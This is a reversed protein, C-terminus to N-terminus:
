RVLTINGQQEIFTGDSLRAKFFYVYVGSPVDVGRFRGDWPFDANESLFVRDGWRDFIQFTMDSLGQGRVFLEDNLGDGNPSFIDPIFVRAPDLICINVQASDPCGGENEIYLSVTYNGPADYSNTPNSAGDYNAIEGDGFEWIGSIGHESLDIFQVPQLEWPICNDNPNTSFGASIPTYSPIFILSDFTCGEDLDQIELEVIDGATSNFPNVADGDWEILYNGAQLVTAEAFGPEGFCATDSLSVIPSIPPLIQILVSDTQPDSCGDEVTVYYYQTEDPSVNNQSLPLLNDSWLFTYFADPEGGTGSVAISTGAGDCLLSDQANLQIELPPFVQVTQEFSSSCYTGSWEYTILYEGEGTNGPNFGEFSIPGTLMGDVPSIELPFLQDEFCYSDELGNINAQQFGEVTMLVSDMCGAPTNWFVYFEDSTVLSPDFLGTQQNVIGEGSWTGGPNINEDVIFEPDSSCMAFASVELENPFVFFRATDVCSNVEYSILYDGPGALEPTFEFYNGDPNTVGVGSWTGGWPTRGTFDETLPLLDDDICFFASDFPIETQRNYMFITDTCGNPAYYILEHWSDNPLISPDYIGAQDDIIGNGTWFGGDPGFDEFPVYPLNEPCSNRGRSGTDVEKITMPLIQNCGNIQYILDYSGPDVSEPEFVGYYPDIFGPGIWTGGFPEFDLTDPFISQCLTDAMFGGSIDEVNIVLTDTCGNVAYEAVYSGPVQPDFTGDPSTFPGSWIGGNPVGGLNFEMAGPCSATTLGADIPTVTVLISDYCSESLVYYLINVGALASDPEFLGTMEDQIGTGFWAGDPQSVPITFAPESQCVAFDPEDIGANTVNIDISFDEVNGTEIETLTVTYTTNVVPCVTHPGPTPPLPPDWAYTYNFCGEPIVEINTCQGACIEEPDQSITANIPCQDQQFNVPLHYLWISDCEDPIGVVIDVLYDCNVNLPEELLITANSASDSVCDLTVNAVEYAQSGTVTVSDPFLWNCGIPFSFNIDIESGPCVPTTDVTPVPPTPQTANTSWELFFGCYSASGDSTFVFTVAGSAATYPGPTFDFGSIEDLLTGSDDLGDYIYLFDFDTEICVNEQFEINIPAGTEITFTLDENLGYEVGDGGSDFLIGDCENTYANEMLFEPLQGVASHVLMLCGILFLLRNM